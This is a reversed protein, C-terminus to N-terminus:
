LRTAKSITRAQITPPTKIEKINVYPLDDADGGFSFFELLTHTLCCM